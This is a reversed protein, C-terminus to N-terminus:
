GCQEEQGGGEGKVKDARVEKAFLGVKCKSLYDPVLSVVCPRVSRIVKRNINDTFVCANECKWQGANSYRSNTITKRRREQRAIAQQSAIQGSYQVLSIELVNQRFDDTAM